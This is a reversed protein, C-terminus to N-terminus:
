IGQCLCVFKKHPHHCIWRKTVIRWLLCRKIVMFLGLVDNAHRNIEKKWWVDITCGYLYVTTLIFKSFLMWQYSKNQFLLHIELWFIYRRILKKSLRKVIITLNLNIISKLVLYKKWWLLKNVIVSKSVTQEGIKITAPKNVNMLLHYKEPCAKMQENSFWEFLTASSFTSYIELLLKLYLLHITIKM